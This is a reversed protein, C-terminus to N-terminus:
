RDSNLSLATWRHDVQKRQQNLWIRQEQSLLLLIGTNKVDLYFSVQGIIFVSWVHSVWNSNIIMFIMKVHCNYANIWIKSRRLCFLFSQRELNHFSVLAKTQSRWTGYTSGWTMQPCTRRMTATSQSPTSIIPTHTLSSAALHQMWWWTWPHWLLYRVPYM